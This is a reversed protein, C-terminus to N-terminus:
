VYTKIVAQLTDPTYPKTVYDDAGQKKAWFKDTDGSKSSVLVVPIGATAPDKKLQRCTAFGDKGPMVIDLLIMDPILEKAKTLAQAGDAAYVPNHGLGAVVKGALQRDTETDDIILITSM